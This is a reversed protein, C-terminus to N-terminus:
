ASKLSEVAQGVSGIDQFIYTSSVLRTAGADIVSRVSKDNLGGVAEIPLDPYNQRILKVKEIAEPLFKGNVTGAEATMVVVFDIEELFPEVADIETSGDIAMGVEIEDYKAATLFLRPDNSEVHAILRTFGGDALSRVYKDPNAVLLHAEFSLNPYLSTLESLRSYDTMTEGVELTGDSINAHIWSVYPAVLAVKDAFAQWDKEGIAAIVDIDSM